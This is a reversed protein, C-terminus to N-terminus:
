STGASTKEYEEKRRELIDEVKGLLRKFSDRHISVCKCKTTARVTAARPNNSLLALEGFYDGRKYKMLVKDGTRAEAEGEEVFYFKNGEQGEVIIDTNPEYYEADLVDAIASREYATLTKLLPVEALFKEYLQRKNNTTQMLIARFTPRDVAWLTCSTIAKVTAARPANYLLALEGFTDGPGYRKVMEPRIREPDKLWVECEGIEILFFKDGEDGQKIIIDNPNYKVEEVSDVVTKTQEKDLSKFLYNKELAHQIRERAAENKEIARPVYAAAKEIDSEASVALRRKTSQSMLKAAKQNLKTRERPTSAATSDPGGGCPPAMGSACGKKAKALIGGNGFIKRGVRVKPLKLKM